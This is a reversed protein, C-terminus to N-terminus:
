DQADLAASTVPPSASAGDIRDPGSQRIGRGGEARRRLWMPFAFWAGLLVVAAGGSSIGAGLGGAVWDSVLLISGIMALSLSALGCLALVNTVNVVEDKVRCRFLLRHVAVPAIFIAAAAGSLMLTALYDDRQFATTRAFRAQFPISLLFAFLIQVGTGIVRLEQVLEAWNRDLQHAESERRGYDGAGAHVGVRETMTRTEVWQTLWLDAPVRPTEPWTLIPLVHM